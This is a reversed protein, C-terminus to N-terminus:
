QTPPIRFYHVAGSILKVPQGEVYFKEKIKFDM